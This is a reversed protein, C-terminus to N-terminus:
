KQLVFAKSTTSDTQNISATAGDVQQNIVAVNGAATGLQIISATSDDNKQIIAAFNAVGALQEISALGNTGGQSIAAGGTTTQTGDFVGSMTAIDAAGSITALEASDIIDNAAHASSALVITLAVFKFFNKMFKGLQVTLILQKVVTPNSFSNKIVSNM